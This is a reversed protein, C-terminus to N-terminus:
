PAEESVRVPLNVIVGLIQGVPSKGFGVIIKVNVLAAHEIFEHQSCEGMM